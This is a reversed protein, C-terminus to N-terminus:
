RFRFLPAEEPNQPVTKDGPGPATVATVWCGCGWGNPPFHTKWFPHDHRLVLGDWKRCTEDHVDDADCFYPTGESFVYRWYPCPSLLEPDSLQDWRFKAHALSRLRWALLWALQDHSVKIPQELERLDELKWDNLLAGRKEVPILDLIAQIIAGKGRGTFTKKGRPAHRAYLSRLAQMKMGSLYDEITYSNIERMEEQRDRHANCSLHEQASPWTWANGLAELIANALRDYGLGEMSALKKCLAPLRSQRDEPVLVETMVDRFAQSFFGEWGEIKLRFPNTTKAAANEARPSAIPVLMRYPSPARPPTKAGFLKAFVGVMTKLITMMM